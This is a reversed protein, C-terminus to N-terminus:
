SVSEQADITSAVGKDIRVVILPEFVLVKDISPRSRVTVDKAHDKCKEKSSFSGNIPVDELGKPCFFPPERRAFGELVIQWHGIGCSTSFVLHDQVKCIAEKPPRSLEFHM